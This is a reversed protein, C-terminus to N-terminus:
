DNEVAQKVPEKLPVTDFESNVPDTLQRTTVSEPNDANNIAGASSPWASQRFEIEGVQHYSSFEWVSARLRERCIIVTYCPRSSRSEGVAALSGRFSLSFEM